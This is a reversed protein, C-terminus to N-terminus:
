IRWWDTCKLSSEWVPVVQVREEEWFNALSKDSWPLHALHAVRHPRVRPVTIRGSSFDKGAVCSRQRGVLALRGFLLHYLCQLSKESIFRPPFFNVSLCLKASFFLTWTQWLKSVVNLDTIHFHLGLVVDLLQSKYNLGQLKSRHRSLLPSLAFSM